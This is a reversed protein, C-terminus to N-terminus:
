QQDDPGSTLLQRIMMQLAIDDASDPAPPAATLPRSYFQCSEALAEVLTQALVTEQFPDLTLVGQLYGDIDFADATGGLALYRLWVEQVTVEAHRRAAEMSRYRNGDSM